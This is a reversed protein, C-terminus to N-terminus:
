FTMCINYCYYISVADMGAWVDVVTNMYEVHGASKAQPLWDWFKPLSGNVALPMCGQFPGFRYPVHVNALANLQNCSSGRGYVRVHKVTRLDGLLLM